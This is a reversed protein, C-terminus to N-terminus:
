EAEALDDGAGHPTRSKRTRTGFHPGRLIKQTSREIRYMRGNLYEIRQGVEHTTQQMGGSVLTVVGLLLLMQGATSLLWGTSAYTEIGAFYGWVVFVTGVTLVGVGAYALVQGWTAESRGPQPRNVLKNTDFHPQPLENHTGHSRRSAEREDKSQMPSIRRSAARRQTPRKARSHPQPPHASDVRWARPPADNHPQEDLLAEAADLAPSQPPRRELRDGPMGKSTSEIEPITAEADAEFDTDAIEQPASASTFSLQSWRELLERAAQTEPHLSPAFVQQLSTQCHTCLLSQGDPSMEGAVASQCQPCWM